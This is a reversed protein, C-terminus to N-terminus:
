AVLVRSDRTYRAIIDDAEPIGTPSTASMVFSTDATSYRDVRGLDARIPKLADYVMLAVARKVDAPTVLWGFAGAVEVSMPDPPWAMGGYYGWQGYNAVGSLYKFPVLELYDVSATGGLRADGTANLSSHLRYVSADQTTQTGDFWMTKVTTVSTCREPLPQVRTGSGNLTYTVSRSEFHDSTAADFQVSVRAIAATLRPDSAEEPTLTVGACYEAFSSPRFDNPVLYTM